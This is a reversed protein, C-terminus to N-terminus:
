CRVGACTRLAVSTAGTSITDLDFVDVGNFFVLELIMGLAHRKSTFVIDGKVLRCIGEKSLTGVCHNTVAFFAGQVCHGDVVRVATLWM